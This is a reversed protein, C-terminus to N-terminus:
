RSGSLSLIPFEKAIQAYSEAIPTSVPDRDKPWRDDSLAKIRDHINQKSRGFFSAIEDMTYGIQYLRFFYEPSPHQMNPVTVGGIFDTLSPLLDIFARVEPTFEFWEGKIKQERLYLHLDREHAYSGVALGQVELVELSAAQMASFRKLPDTTSGIKGRTDDGQRCVFYIFRSKMDYMVHGLIDSRSSRGREIM